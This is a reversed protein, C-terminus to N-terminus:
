SFEDVQVTGGESGLVCGEVVCVLGARAMAVDGALAAGGVADDLGLVM